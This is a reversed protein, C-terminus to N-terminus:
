IIQYLKLLPSRFIPCLPCPSWIPFGFLVIVYTSISLKLLKSYNVYITNQNMVIYGSLVLFDGRWVCGEGGSREMM